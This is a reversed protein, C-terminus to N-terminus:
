YDEKPFKSRWHQNCGYALDAATVTSDDGRDEAHKTALFVVDAEDEKTLKEKLSPIDSNFTAVAAAVAEKTPSTSIFMVKEADDEGPTLGDAKASFGREM